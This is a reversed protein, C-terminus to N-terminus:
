ERAARAAEEARVAATRSAMESLGKTDGNRLLAAAQEFDAAFQERHTELYQGWAEGILDSAQRGTLAAIRRASEYVDEPLRVVVSM